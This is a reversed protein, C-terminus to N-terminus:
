RATGSAAQLLRVCADAGATQACDLPTQGEEDRMDAPAGHVLLMQLLDDRGNMAAVHLPTRGRADAITPRGGEELITWVVPAEGQAVAEILPTRGGGDAQNIDPPLVSMMVLRAAAWHRSRIAAHLPNRGLRDCLAADAQAGMLLKVLEVRGNGAALHLPRMGNLDAVDPDAGHELLWRALVTWGHSCATHLRSQGIKPDLANLSGGAALHDRAEQLAREQPADLGHAGCGIAPMVLCPVVCLIPIRSM